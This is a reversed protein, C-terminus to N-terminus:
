RSLKFDKDMVTKRGDARAEDIAQECLIRVAMSLWDYASSSTNFGSKEAIYDRVKSQVVLIEGANAASSSPAPNMRIIKKQPGTQTTNVPMQTSMSSSASAASTFTAPPAEELRSPAKEEIAGSTKHNAFPLHADWCQVSCFVLATRKQNCTSVSCRFYKGNLLIEKKCQSCKKWVAPSNM